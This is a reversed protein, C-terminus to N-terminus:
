ATWDALRVACSMWERYSSFIARMLGMGLTTLSALEAASLATHAVSRVRGEQQGFKQYPFAQYRLNVREDPRIFGVARSPAFLHVQLAAGDPQIVALLQSPSVAQGLTALDVTLM